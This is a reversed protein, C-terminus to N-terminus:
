KLPLVIENSETNDYLSVCGDPPIPNYRCRVGRELLPHFDNACYFDEDYVVVTNFGANKLEEYPNPPYVPDDFALSYM